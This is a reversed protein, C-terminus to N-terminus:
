FYKEIDQPGEIMLRGLPKGDVVDGVTHVRRTFETDKRSVTLVIDKDPRANVYSKFELFNRVRTGGRGVVIDGAVLGAKGAPGNPDVSQLEAPVVPMWYTFGLGKELEDPETLKRRADSDQIDIVLDR